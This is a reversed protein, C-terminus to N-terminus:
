RKIRNFCAYLLKSLSKDDMCLFYNVWISYDIGEATFTCYAFLIFFLLNSFCTYQSFCLFGDFQLSINLYFVLLIFSFSFEGRGRYDERLIM